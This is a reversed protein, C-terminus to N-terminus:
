KIPLYNMLFCSVKRSGRTYNFRWCYCCIVNSCWKNHIKTQNCKIKKLNRWFCFLENWGDEKEGYCSVCVTGFFFFWSCCCLWSCVRSCGVWEWESIGVIMLLMSCPTTTICFSYPASTKPYNTHTLARVNHGVTNFSCKATTTITNKKRLEGNPM